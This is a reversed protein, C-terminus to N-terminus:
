SALPRKRAMGARRPYRSPTAATKAFVHLHRAQAGAFPEVRRIEELELGLMAAAQAAAQEHALSRAGRWDILRGGVRLLPAAYELVVTQPALARALVADNRGAGDSWEEARAHVVRVNELGAAELARGLFECSRRRSEVAFVEASPLATALALGPFGAGSGVDAIREASRLAEIELAVLSDALHEDRVRTPDRIATPALDDAVVIELLAALQARQTESLDLRLEAILAANADASM